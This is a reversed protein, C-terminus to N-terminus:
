NKFPFSKGNLDMQFINYNFLGDLESIGAMVAKGLAPYYQFHTDDNVTNFSAGLNVPASWQVIVLEVHATSHFWQLAHM